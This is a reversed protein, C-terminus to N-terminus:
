QRTNARPAADPTPATRAHRRQPMRSKVASHTVGLSSARRRHIRPTTVLYAGEEM